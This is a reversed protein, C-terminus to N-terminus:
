KRGGIGGIIQSLVKELDFGKDRLTRLARVTQRIPYQSACEKPTAERNEKKNWEAMEMQRYSMAHENYSGSGRKFRLTISEPDPTYQFYCIPWDSPMRVEEHMANSWFAIYRRPEGELKFKHPRGSELLSDKIARAIAREKDEQYREMVSKTENTM